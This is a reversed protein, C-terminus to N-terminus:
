PADGTRDLVRRASRAVEPLALLALALAWWWVTGRGPTGPAPTGVADDELEAALAAMSAAEDAGGTRHAYTGGLTRALSRLTSADLRTVAPEGTAPDLLPDDSAPWGEKLERTSPVYGADAPMTAGSATGYGLVLATSVGGSSSGGSGGAALTAWDAVGSAGSATEEGDSLVVLATRAAQSGTSPARDLVEGLLGVPTALSTGTGAYPQEVLVQDLQRDLGETDTTYPVRLTAEQGFTVVSIRVDPLAAALAEVDAVAAALRTEPEGSGGADAASMSTTRDLAVVVDLEVPDQAPVADRQGLGLALGVAAVALLVRRLVLLVGALLSGALLSRAPM